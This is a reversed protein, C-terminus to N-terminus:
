AKNLVAAQEVPMCAIYNERFRAFGKRDAETAAIETGEVNTFLM